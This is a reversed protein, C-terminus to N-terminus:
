FKRKIINTWYNKLIPIVMFFYEKCIDLNSMIVSTKVNRYKLAFKRFELQETTNLGDDEQPPNKEPINKLSDQKAPPAPEPSKKSEEPIMKIQIQNPEAM